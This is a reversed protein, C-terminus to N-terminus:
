LLFFSVSLPRYKVQGVTSCALSNLLLPLFSIYNYAKQIKSTLVKYKKVTDLDPIICVDDANSNISMVYDSFITMYFDTMIENAKKLKTYLSRLESFSKINKLTISNIFEDNYTSVNNARDKKASVKPM